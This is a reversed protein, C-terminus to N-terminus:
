GRRPLCVVVTPTQECNAALNFVFLIVSSKAARVGSRSADPMELHVLSALSAHTLHHKSFSGWQTTDCMGEAEEQGLMTMIVLINSPRLVLSSSM